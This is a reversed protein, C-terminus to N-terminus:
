NIKTLNFLLSNGNDIIQGPYKIIFNYEKLKEELEKALETNKGMMLLRTNIYEHYVDTNVNTLVLLCRSHRMDIYVKGIDINYNEIDQYTPLNDFINNKM